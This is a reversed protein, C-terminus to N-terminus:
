RIDIVEVLKWSSNNQRCRYYLQDFKISDNHWFYGRAFIIFNKKNKTFLPPSILYHWAGKKPKENNIYKFDKNFFLFSTKKNKLNEYQQNLYEIDENQFASDSCINELDDKTIESYFFSAITLEEGKKFLVKKIFYSNAIKYDEITDIKNINCTTLTFLLLSIFIRILSIKKFKLNKM